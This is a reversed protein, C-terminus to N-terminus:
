EVGDDGEDDEGEVDEEDPTPAPPMPARTVDAFTMGNTLKKVEMKGTLLSLFVGDSWYRPENTYPDVKKRKIRQVLLIPEKNPYRDIWVIDGENLERWKPYHNRRRRRWRMM